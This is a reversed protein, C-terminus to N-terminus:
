VKGAAVTLSRELTRDDAPPNQDRALIAEPAKGQRPHGRARHDLVRRQAPHPRPANQLRPRARVAQRRRLLVARLQVRRRHPRTLLHAPQRRVAADRPLKQRRPRGHRHAGLPRPRVHRDARRRARVHHRDAQYRPRALLHVARRQRVRVRVWQPRNPDLHPHPIQVAEEPHPQSRNRHVPDRRLLDRDRAQRPRGPVRDRHEPSGAQLREQLQWKTKRRLRSSRPRTHFGRPAFM